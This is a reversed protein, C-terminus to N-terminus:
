YRKLVIRERHHIWPYFRRLSRRGLNGGWLILNSLAPTFDLLRINFDKFGFLKGQTLGVSMYSVESKDHWASASVTSDFMGYPTEGFFTLSHRWSYSSRELSDWSRGTEFSSWDLYYRIKFNKAREEAQRLEEEVSLGIPRPPITLFELTWRGNNDWIHLYAYGLKDGTVLIEDPGKREVKLVFPETVLFRQIGRGKITITEGQEIEIPQRIRSLSEDLTLERPAYIRKKIEKPLPFAEMPRQKERIMEKQIELIEAYESPTVSPIKEIPVVAAGSIMRQTMEIYRQAPEYDPQALLAKKFEHL